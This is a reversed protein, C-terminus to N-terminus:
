QRKVTQVLNMMIKKRRLGNKHSAIIATVTIPPQYCAVPRREQVTLESSYIAVALALSASAPTLVVPTPGHDSDSDNSCKRANLV